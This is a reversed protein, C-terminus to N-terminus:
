RARRLVRRLVPAFLYTAEEVRLLMCALVFIITGLASPVALRILDAKKGPAELEELYAEELLLRNLWVGARGTPNSRVLRRTEDTLNIGQFLREDYISPGHLIRNLDAVVAERVPRSPEYEVAYADVMRKTEPSLQGAVYQEVPEDATRLSFVLRARHDFDAAQFLLANEPLGALDKPEALKRGFAQQLLIRNLRVRDTGTPNGALATWADDDLEVDEFRKEDYLAGDQLIRNLDAALAQKLSQPPDISDYFGNVTMRTEPSFQAMLHHSLPARADKPDALTAVLRSHDKLQKRQILLLSEPLVPRAMAMWMVAAMAVVAVALKAGFVILPGPQVPAIRGRLYVALLIVKVTRAVTYGLAIGGVGWGMVLTAVGTFAIHIVFTVLAILTPTMTNSMAFYPELLIMESSMALLGLTLYAMAPVVLETSEHGFKGWQYVAQVIPYRLLLMAVTMPVFMVFVIRLSRVLMETMRVRDDRAAMESMFPFLARRLALPFIQAPTDVLARAYRLAAVAGGAALGSALWNDWIPRINGLVNGLLLPVALIGVTRVAPNKLDLTPRCLALKDRLGFVHIALKAVTGLVVGIAMAPIGMQAAFFVLAVVTGGKFVADAAAPLGFIKYSNLVVYTLSSVPLIIVAPVMIRLLFITIKTARPNKFDTDFNVVFPTLLLTLIGVALFALFVISLVTSALRWGQKEGQNARTQIFTPMFSHQLLQEVVFCINLVLGVAAGYADAAAGTGFRAAMLPKEVLGLVKTAMQGFLILGTAKAVKKGVGAESPKSTDVM